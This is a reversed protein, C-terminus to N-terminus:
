LSKPLGLFCVYVDHYIVASNLLHFSPGIINLNLGQTHSVLYSFFFLLTKYQLVDFIKSM